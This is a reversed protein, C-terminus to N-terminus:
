HSSLKVLAEILSTHEQQHMRAELDALSDTPLIPVEATLVVEGHDVVPTVMHIMIGTHPIKGEKYANYAREIANVGDFQGPLAPHLNVCKNPFHNLFAETFIHMWGALVIIDPNYPKVKEALEADYDERSKGADKFPKLPFYMTPINAKAARELAFANKRNSIVVKINLKLKGAAVADIIAQLNSGNGSVFVVADKM